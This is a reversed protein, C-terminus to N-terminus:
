GEADPSAPLADLPRAGKKRMGAFMERLSALVEASSGVSMRCPPLSELFRAGYPRRVVRSDLILVAGRDDQRRMLRGFGQRLRVIADPLSLEYFPNGGREQIM